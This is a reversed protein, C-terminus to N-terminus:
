VSVKPPSPLNKPPKSLSNRLPMVGSVSDLASLVMGSYTNTDKWAVNAAMVTASITPENASRM